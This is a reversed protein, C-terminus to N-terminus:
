KPVRLLITLPDGDMASISNFPNGYLSGPGSPKKRLRLGAQSVDIARGTSLFPVGGVRVTGTPVGATPDTNIYGSLDLPQYGGRTGSAPAARVARIAGGEPTDLTIAPLLATRPLTAIARGNFWFWVAEKGVDIRVSFWRGRWGPLAAAERALDAEVGAGWGKEAFPKLHETEAAVQKGGALVKIDVATNAADVAAELQGGAGARFLSGAREFRVEAEVQFEPWRPLPVRITSDSAAVLGSAALVGIIM